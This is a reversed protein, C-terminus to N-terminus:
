DMMCVLQTLELQWPPLTLGSKRCAVLIVPLAPRILDRVSPFDMGGDDLPFLRVLDPFLVFQRNPSHRLLDM